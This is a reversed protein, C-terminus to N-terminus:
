LNVAMLILFHLNETKKQGFHRPCFLRLRGRFANKNPREPIGCPSNTHFIWVSVMVNVSNTHIKYTWKSFGILQGKRFGLFRVLM